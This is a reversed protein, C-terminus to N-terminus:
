RKTHPGLTPPNSRAAVPDPLIAADKARRVGGGVMTDVWKEGQAVAKAARM